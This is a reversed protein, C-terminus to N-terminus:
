DREYLVGKLEASLASAILTAAETRRVQLDIQTWAFAGPSDQLLGYSRLPGVIMIRRSSIAPTGPPPALVMGKEDRPPLMTERKGTAVTIRRFAPRVRQLFSGFRAATDAARDLEAFAMEMSMAAPLWTVTADDLLMFEVKWGDPVAKLLASNTATRGRRAYRAGCAWHAKAARCSAGTLSWGDIDLPLKRFTSMVRQPENARHLPHAQIFRDLVRRWAVVSSVVAPIPAPVSRQARWYLSGARLIALGIALAIFLRAAPPLRTWAAGTGLLRSAADASQALPEVSMCLLNTDVAQGGFERSDFTNHVVLAPVTQRLKLLADQAACETSFLRDTRVMVAGDHAGALWFADDQLRLLVAVAGEPHQRAFAQAASHYSRSRSVKHLRACGVAAGRNGGFVYHSARAQVARKRALSAVRSGVLPSWRMGFVLACATQPDDVIFPSSADPTATNL